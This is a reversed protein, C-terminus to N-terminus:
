LSQAPNGFVKKHAEVSRLVVSGAGVLCGEGLQVGPHIVAGTGIFVGDEVHVNAGIRAGANFNCYNGIRVDTEVTVGSHFHNMDGVESNANIASFANFINGFGVRANGSQWSLPHVANASPRKTRQAVKQYIRQREAMDGAAVIFEVRSDKLLARSVDEDYHGVVNIDNLERISREPDIELFGLVVHGMAAYVDAAIRAEPGTGVIIIQKEEM